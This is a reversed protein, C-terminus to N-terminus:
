AVGQNTKPCRTVLGAGSNLALKGDADAMAPNARGWAELALRIGGSVNGTGARAALALHALGLSVNTREKCVLATSGQPRGVPRAGPKLSPSM